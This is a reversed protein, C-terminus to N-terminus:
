LCLITLTLRLVLYDLSNEFLQGFHKYIPGTRILYPWSLSIKLTTDTDIGDIKFHMLHLFNENNMIKLLFITIHIFSNLLHDILIKHKMSITAM